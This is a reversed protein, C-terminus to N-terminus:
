RFYSDYNGNYKKLVYEHSHYEIVVGKFGNNDAIHKAVSEINKHFDNDCDNLNADTPFVYSVTCNPENFWVWIDHCPISRTLSSRMEVKFDSEAKLRKKMKLKARAFDEETPISSINSM